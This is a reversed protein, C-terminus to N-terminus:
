GAGGESRNTAAEGHAERFRQLVGPSFSWEHAEQCGTSAAQATVMAEPDFSLHDIDLSEVFTQNTLLSPDELVEACIHAATFRALEELHGQQETLVAKAEEVTVGVQYFTKEARSLPTLEMFDFYVPERPPNRHTKKWQFYGSLLKQMGHNIPGLRAFRRLFALAFRRDTFLDNIFPFVYFAFYIALEWTYKLCFVEQDGLADYSLSYGPVYASYIARMLSEYLQCKAALAQDNGDDGAIADVILTNHFSILDSGPSYLPDSFRGSEGTIAWRQPHLTQQCDYSFDKYGAFDIVKRQPLDRAFLPFRECVWRTAKEVSFVDDHSILEHDYVLGLSTKGQLPIVWFWFGEGMFHNTALWSPQHGTFRREAKKRIEAQSLDTLKDVDVLGEVWWFFSGHRIPNPKGLDLRRALVKGRGSTDVVWTADVERQTGDEETFAVRHTGHEAQLRHHFDSTPSFSSDPPSDLLFVPPLGSTQRPHKSASDGSSVRESGSLTEGCAALDVTTIKVGTRLTFRPSELNRRLLEAEFTNRDLQYSAINSFPRIYAKSFDEFRSNDRESSPWYFRLNYKLYHERFLYEEMDLVRSFYYGALQVLSEGVKQRPPPIESRRELLLIRKQTDRILHQALSLGALGAGMLVVDYHEELSQSINEAGAREMM